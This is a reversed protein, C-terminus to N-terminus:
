KYAKHQRSLDALVIALANELVIGIRKIIATDHRGEIKLKSVKKDDFSYTEREIGVSPTPKIFVNIVLDNGNSIGGTIGGDHNNETKGFEDLFSENFKSGKFSSGEFGIGFDLGKVSPISFFMQAIKADLKNFFPDGLGADMRTARVTIIGGVSDKEKEITKLYEDFDDFNSIDGIQKIISSIKYPIMMKAFSGAVTLAATIRGSFFGGGRYDQFGEYKISSVLDAHGPRPHTKIKDYDKSIVDKNKIEVHIPAGTTYGNFVGSTITYDDDEQRKTIGPYYARRQKLDNIIINYDVKIGHKMGSIVVGISNQHSEGYLTVQFLKGFTNM